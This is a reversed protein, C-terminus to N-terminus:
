KEIRIRLDGKLFGVKINEHLEQIAIMGITSRYLMGAIQSCLAWRAVRQEATHEVPELLYKKKKRANPM